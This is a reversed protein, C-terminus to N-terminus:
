RLGKGRLWEDVLKADNSKLPPEPEARYDFDYRGM